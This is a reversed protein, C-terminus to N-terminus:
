SLGGSTTILFTIVMQKIVKNPHYIAIGSSKSFGASYYIARFRTYLGKILTQIGICLSKLSKMSGWIYLLVLLSM